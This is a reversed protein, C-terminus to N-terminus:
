LSLIYISSLSIHPQNTFHHHTLLQHPPLYTIPQIPYTHFSIHSYTIYIPIPQSHHIITYNHISPQTFPFDSLTTLHLPTLNILASYTLFNFSQIYTHQTNYSTSTLTPHSYILLIYLQPFSSIIQFHPKPFNYLQHQFQYPLLYQFLPYSQPACPIYLTLPSLNHHTSPLLSFSTHQYLTSSPHSPIPTIFQTFFHQIHPSYILQINTIPQLNSYLHHQQIHHSHNSSIYTYHPYTYPHNFTQLHFPTSPSHPPYEYTLIILPYSLSSLSIFHQPM